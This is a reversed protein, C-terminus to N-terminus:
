NELEKITTSYPLLQQCLHNNIERDRCSSKDPAATTKRTENDSTSFRRVVFLLVAIRCHKFSINLIKEIKINVKFNLTKERNHATLRRGRSYWIWIGRLFMNNIFLCKRHRGKATKTNYANLHHKKVYNNIHMITNM